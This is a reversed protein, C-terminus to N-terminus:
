EAKELSTGNWSWGIGDDPFDTGTMDVIVPNSSLAASLMEVKSNGVSPMKLVCAFEGGIVLAYTKIDSYVNEVESM